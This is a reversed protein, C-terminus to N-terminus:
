ESSEVDASFAAACAADAADFFNNVPGERRSKHGLSGCGAYSSKCCVSCCLVIFAYMFNQLVYYCLYIKQVVKTNHKAICM